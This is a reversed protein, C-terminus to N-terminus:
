EGEAKKKPRGPKKAALVALIADMKGGLDTVAQKVEALDTESAYKEAPLAGISASQKVIEDRSKTQQQAARVMLLEQAQKRLTLTGHGLAQCQADSLVAVEEATHVNRDIFGKARQEDVGPLDTLPTGTRQKMPVGDCFSNWEERFQAMHEPKVKRVVTDKTGVFSIEVLDAEGERYFRASQPLSQVEPLDISM